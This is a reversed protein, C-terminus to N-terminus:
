NKGIYIIGSSEPRQQPKTMAKNDYSKHVGRVLVSDHDYFESARRTLVTVYYYSECAGRVPASAVFTPM